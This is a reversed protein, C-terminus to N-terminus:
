VSVVFRQNSEGDQLSCDPVNHLLQEAVADWIVPHLTLLSNGSMDERLDCICVYVCAFTCVCLLPARKVNSRKSEHKYESEM